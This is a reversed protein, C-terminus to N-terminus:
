GLGRLWETGQRAVVEAAGIREPSEAFRYPLLHKNPVTPWQKGSRDIVRRLETVVDDPLALLESRLDEPLFVWAEADRCQILAKSRAVVAAWMGSDSLPLGKLADAADRARQYAAELDPLTM